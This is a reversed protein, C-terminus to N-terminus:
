GRERDSRFPSAHREALFGANDVCEGHDPFQGLVYIDHPRRAECALLRLGARDLLALLSATDFVHHHLLRTAANDRREAEWVSRDQAVDRRHDHLALTEDLHTLDDEGVGRARDEVMHGLPTVPRHRDFTGERHPAIVLLHGGPRTVRRWAELALLPNALHEIVHSHCIADYTADEVGPLAAGEVIHQEGLVVGDPAFDVAGALDHWATSTAFQVNDVSRSCAYLPVPGGASFVASPGGIELTRAGHFPALFREGLPRRAQRSARWRLDRLADLVSM